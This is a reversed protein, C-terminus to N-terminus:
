MIIVIKQCDSWDLYRKSDELKIKKISIQLYRENKERDLGCKFAYM